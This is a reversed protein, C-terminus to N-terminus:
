KQLNARERFELDEDVTSWVQIDGDEFKLMLGGTEFCAFDQADRSHESFVRAVIAKKGVVTVLDGEEVREGSKYQFDGMVFNRRLVVAPLLPLLQGM